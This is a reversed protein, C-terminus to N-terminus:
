FLPDLITREFEERAPSRLLSLDVIQPKTVCDVYLSLTWTKFLLDLLGRIRAYRNGGAPARFLPVARLDIASLFEDALRVIRGPVPLSKQLSKQTPTSGELVGFMFDDVQGVQDDLVRAPLLWHHDCVPFASQHLTALTTALQVITQTVHDPGSRSRNGLIRKSMEAFFRLVQGLPHAILREALEPPLTKQSFRTGIEAILLDSLTCPRRGGNSRAAHLQDIVPEMFTHDTAHIHAPMKERVLFFLQSLFFLPDYGRENFKLCSGSRCLLDRGVSCATDVAIVKGPATARIERIMSVARKVSGLETLIPSDNEGGKEILFVTKKGAADDTRPLFFVFNSPTMM